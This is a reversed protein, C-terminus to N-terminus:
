LRQFSVFQLTGGGVAGGDQLRQDYHVVSSDKIQVQEEGMVSGYVESNGLVEAITGARAVFFSTAMNELKTEGVSYTVMRSPENNLAGFSSNDKITMKNSYVQVSVESATGLGYGSEDDDYVEFRGGDMNFENPFVSLSFLLATVFLGFGLMVELLM